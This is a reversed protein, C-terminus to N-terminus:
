RAETRIKLDIMETARAAVACAVLQSKREIGLGIMLKLSPWSEEHEDYGGSHVNSCSQVASLIM